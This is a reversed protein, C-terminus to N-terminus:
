LAKHVMDKFRFANDAAGCGCAGESLRHRQNEDIQTETLHSEFSFGSDGSRTENKVRDGAGFGSDYSTVQVTKCFDLLRIIACLTTKKCGLRLHLPSRHCLSRADSDGGCDGLRTGIGGRNKRSSHSDFGVRALNVRTVLHANGYGRNFNCIL